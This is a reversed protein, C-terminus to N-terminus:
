TRFNGTTTNILGLIGVGNDVSSVILTSEDQSLGFAEASSSGYKVNWAFNFDPDIKFLYGDSALFYFGSTGAIFDFVNAISSSSSKYQVAIMPINDYASNSCKHADFGSFITLFVLLIRTFTLKTLILFYCEPM